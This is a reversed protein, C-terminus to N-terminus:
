LREQGGGIAFAQRAVAAKLREGAAGLDVSVRTSFGRRTDREPYLGYVLAANGGRIMAPDDHTMKPCREVIYDDVFLHRRTGIEVAKAVTAGM